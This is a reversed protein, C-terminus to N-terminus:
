LGAMSKFARIEADQEPYINRTDMGSLERMENLDTEKEARYEHPSTIIVQSLMDADADYEEDNLKVTWDTVKIDTLTVLDTLMEIIREPVKIRRSMEVFVLYKGMSYEGDSVQADLVWDYGREFWDVLDSSAQEGKVIFALTVIEDDSGMKAAYEDISVLPTIQGEMDHYRLGENLVINM